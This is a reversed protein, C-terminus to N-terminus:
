GRAQAEEVLKAISNVNDFAETTAEEDSLQIGYEEELFMKLSQMSFSDVLGSSILPTEATIEMSDDEVYEDYIFEIIKDRMAEDM